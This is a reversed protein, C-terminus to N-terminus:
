IINNKIINYFTKIAYYKQVITFIFLPKLHIVTSTIRSLGSQVQFRVYPKNQALSRLGTKDFAQKLGYNMSVSNMMAKVSSNTKASVRVMFFSIFFLLIQKINILNKVKAHFNHCVDFDNLNLYNLLYIFLIQFAIIKLFNM